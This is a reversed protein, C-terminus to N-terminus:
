QSYAEHMHSLMNTEYLGLKLGNKTVLKSNEGSLAENILSDLDEQSFEEM